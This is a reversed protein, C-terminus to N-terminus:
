AEKIRTWESRNEKRKLSVTSYEVAGHRKVRKRRADADGDRVRGKWTAVHRETWQERGKAEKKTAEKRKRRRQRQMTARSKERPVYRKRRVALRAM